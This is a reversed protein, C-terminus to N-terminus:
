EQSEYYANLYEAAKAADAKYLYGTDLMILTSGAHVYNETGLVALIEETNVAYLIAKRLNEDVMKSEGNQLLSLFSVGVSPRKLMNINEDAECLAINEGGPMAEDLEGNRFAATQTSNDAIALMDIYKIQGADEAEPNWGPNRVLYSGYDDVHSLVYPGSFYMGSDEGEKLTSPDGYLVHTNPDYNEATIGENIIEVQQKCVISIQGSSLTQLQQPYQSKLHIHLVEYAGTNEDAAYKDAAISTFPKDIGENLADFVSKDSGSAKAAKLEEIDSVINVSEVYSLYSAGVGNPVTEAIAREYTFKVDEAAVPLGTDIAEGDKMAGFNIDTRLLFYLDQNGEGVTYNKTLSGRTTVIGGMAVQILPVNINTRQYYTTGNSGQCSDFSNPGAWNIGMKYHRTEAQSMDTYKTSWVWRAGGVSAEISDADVVNKNVAFTKLASYLPVIYANEEVLALELQKYVELAAEDNLSAAEDILADVTEDNYGYKNWAGESHFPGRVNADPSGSGSHSTIAFDHEGTEIAANFTGSDPFVNVTVNMGAKKLQDRVVNAVKEDSATCILSLEVPDREVAPAPATTSESGSSSSESSAAPPNQAEERTQTNCGAFVSVLLALCLLIAIRKKM